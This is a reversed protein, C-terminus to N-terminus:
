SSLQNWFSLMDEPLPTQCSIIKGTLPHVFALKEAHLAHRGIEKTNGGYLHDGALPHGIHSFHVRIQHTRGTELRISVLAYKAKQSLVEYHTIARAGKEYDVRRTIVSDERRSIPADITGVTPLSGEAIALYSKSLNGKKLLASLMSAAISHKAILVLGSTNQDLRNVPRYTFREEKQAYYACVANALTDDHHRASPITPMGAPKNVILLDDDEYLITLPLPIPEIDSGGIETIQVCLEDGAHLVHNVYVFIGNVLLNEPMKKLEILNRSSYGLHLLYEKIARNHFEETIKYCLVRKM